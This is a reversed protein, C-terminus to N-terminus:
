PLRPLAVISGLPRYAYFCLRLNPEHEGDCLDVDGHGVVDTPFDVQGTPFGM